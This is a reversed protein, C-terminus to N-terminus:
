AASRPSRATAASAPTPRWIVNGSLSATGTTSVLAGYTGSVGTGAITVTENGIARGFLDLAGGSQVITGASTNGLATTTGTRLIAGAGVTLTGTITIAGNLLFAPTETSGGVVRRFTLGGAGSIVGNFTQTDGWWEEIVSASNVTVNGSFVTAGDNVRLTGGGFTWSNAMTGSNTANINLYVTGGSNVTIRGTGFGSTTGGVGLAASSIAATGGNVTLGGSFTNLTSSLILTGSGNKTIAGGGTVAGQLTTTGSGGIALAFGDNNVGNLVNLNGAANNTWAQTGGLLVAVNQNATASGIQVVGTGSKTIGGTGLTLTRNAGGGQLTVAAPSVSTLGLVSLDGNANVTQVTSLTSANFQAFGTADPLSKAPVTAGSTLSWNDISQWDNATGGFNDWYWTTQASATTASVAVLWALSVFSRLHSIM